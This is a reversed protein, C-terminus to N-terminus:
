KLTAILLIPNDEEKVDMLMKIYDDRSTEIKVNENRIDEINYYKLLDSPYIIDCWYKNTKYDVEFEGGILDNHLEFMYKFRRHIFAPNKMEIIQSKSNLSQLEGDKKGYKVTYLNKSKGLVFYFFDKTDYFDYLWLYSFFEAKKLWEHSMEFSPREGLDLIYCPSFSNKIYQYITDGGYYIMRFDDNYFDIHTKTQETWQDRVLSNGSGARERIENEYFRFSPNFFKKVVSLSTDVLALTWLEKNPFLIPLQNNLFFKEGTFLIRGNPSFFLDEFLTNPITKIYKGDYDFVKLGRTTLLYVLSLKENVIMQPTSLYESPGQGKRGIRNLFIGEKSFRLIGNKYDVIFIDNNTIFVNEIDGLLSQETLELKVIDINESVDSLNLVSVSNKIGNILDINKLILEKSSIDKEKSLNICSVFFSLFLMYYKM